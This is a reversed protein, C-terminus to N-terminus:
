REDFYIDGLIRFVQFIFRHTVLFFAVTMAVHVDRRAHIHFQRPTLIYPAAPSKEWDRKVQKEIYRIKQAMFPHPLLAKDILHTQSSEIILKLRCRDGSNIRALLLPSLSGIPSRSLDLLVLNRSIGLDKPLMTVFTFSLDLFTLEALYSIGETVEEIPNNNISLEQLRSLLLIQPPLVQLANHSLDLKRIQNLAFLGTPIQRICEKSPLQETPTCGFVPQLTLKKLATLKEAEKPFTFSDRTHITLEELSTLTAIKPSLRRLWPACLTLERLQTMTPGEAWVVCQTTSLTLSKLQNAGDLERPIHTVMRNREYTPDSQSPLMAVLSLSMAAQCDAQFAETSGVMRRVLALPDEPTEQNLVSEMQSPATLDDLCNSINLRCQAIILQNLDLIYRLTLLRSPNNPPPQLLLSKAEEELAKSLAVMGISNPYPKERKKLNAERYLGQVREPGLQAELKERRTRLASDMANYARKCTLLFHPNNVLSSIHTLLDAPLSTLQASTESSDTAFRPISTFIPNLQLAM